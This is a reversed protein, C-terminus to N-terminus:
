VGRKKRTKENERNRHVHEERDGLANSVELKQATSYRKKEGSAM